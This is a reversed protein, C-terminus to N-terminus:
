PRLNESRLFAWFPGPSISGVAEFSTAELPNSPITMSSPRGPGPYDVGDGAAFAATASLALAAAATLVAFIHKV